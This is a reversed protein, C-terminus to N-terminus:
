KEAGKTKKIAELKKGLVILVNKIDVSPNGTPNQLTGRILSNCSAAEVSDLEFLIQTPPKLAPNKSNPSNARALRLLAQGSEHGGIDLILDMFKNARGLHDANRHKESDSGGHGLLEKVSKGTKSSEVVAHLYAMPNRPLFRAAGFKFEKANFIAVSAMELLMSEYLSYYGALFVRALLEEFLKVIICRAELKLAEQSIEAEVFKVRAQLINMAQPEGVMEVAYALNQEQARLMKVFMTLAQGKLEQIPIKPANEKIFNVIVLLAHGFTGHLLTGRNFRMTTHPGMDEKDISM